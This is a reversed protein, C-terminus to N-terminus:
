ILYMCTHPNVKNGQLDEIEVQEEGAAEVHSVYRSFVKKLGKMDSVNGGLFLHAEQFAAEHQQLINLVYYVIDDQQHFEFQNVLLLQNNKLLIFGVKKGNFHLLMKYPVTADFHLLHHYWLTMAHRFIPSPLTARLPLTKNMPVAYLAVYEGFEDEFVEDNDSLDYQLKLYAAAPRQYFERPVLLPASPNVSVLTQDASTDFFVGCERQLTPLTANKYSECIYKGDSQKKLLSFGSNNLSVAHYPLNNQKEM